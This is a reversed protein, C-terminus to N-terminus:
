AEVIRPKLTEPQVSSTQSFSHACQSHPNRANDISSLSPIVDPM